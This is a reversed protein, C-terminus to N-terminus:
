DHIYQHIITILENKNAEFESILQMQVKTRVLNHEPYKIKYYIDGNLYDALFRIGMIYTMLIPALHILEKEKASLVKKVQPLFGKSFNSYADLNIKVLSIDKEDENAKNAITRLADGFDYFIIGPGVTDLDIVAAAKTNRFLVNNIKTDNHTIRIPIEKNEVHEEIEVLQKERKKYFDLLDSVDEKRKARNEDIAQNLQDIRFSLKHFNPIAESLKSTDIGELANIFWGYARGAETAQWNHEVLDISYAEKIRSTMRWAENEKTRFIYNGITDPIIEALEIAGKKEKKLHNQILLHNKALGEADLFITTNIKQLIYEEKENKLSVLYTDNIHGNGFPKIQEIVSNQLFNQAIVVLSSTKM